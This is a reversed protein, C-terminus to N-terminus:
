GFWGRQRAGQPVAMGAPSSGLVPTSSGFMDGWTPADTLMGSGGLGQGAVGLLQGIGRETSGAANAAQLEGPLLAASNRANGGFINQWQGARGLEIGMKATQDGVGNVAANAKAQQKGRTLAGSLSRAIASRSEGDLSAGGTGYVGRNADLTAADKNARYDAMAAQEAIQTPARAKDLTVDFLDGSQKRFQQQRQQEAMNASNRAGEQAQAGLMNMGVSAASALGGAAALPGCM